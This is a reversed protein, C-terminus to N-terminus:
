SISFTTNSVRVLSELYGTRKKITTTKPEEADRQEQTYQCDGTKSLNKTKDDKFPTTATLGANPGSCSASIIGSGSALFPINEECGGALFECDPSKARHVELPNTGRKWHSAPIRIPCWFCVTETTRPDFYFGAKALQSPWVGKYTEFPRDKFSNIRLQECKMLEPNLIGNELEKYHYEIFRSANIIEPDSLASENM